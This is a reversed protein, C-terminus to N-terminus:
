LCIREGRLCLKLQTQHDYFHNEPAKLQSETNRDIGFLNMNFCCVHRWAGHFQVDVLNLHWPRFHCFCRQFNVWILLHHLLASGKVAPQLSDKAECMQSAGVVDVGADMYVGVSYSHHWIYFATTTKQHWELTNGDTEWGIWAARRKSWTLSETHRRLKIAVQNQHDFSVVTVFCCFFVSAKYGAYILLDKNRQMGREKCTVQKDCRDAHKRSGLWRDTETGSRTQRGSKIEEDTETCGSRGSPGQDKESCSQNASQGKPQNSNGVASPCVCVCTDAPVCLCSHLPMKNLMCSALLRQSSSSVM